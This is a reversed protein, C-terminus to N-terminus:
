KNLINKIKIAVELCLRDEAHELNLKSIERIRKLRYNLTNRHLFLHGATSQINCNHCFYQELSSVLETGNQQDYNILPQLYDELFKQLDDTCQHTILLRYIGLENFHYVKGKGWVARGIKLAQRAEQYSKNLEVIQGYPRGIGISVSLDDFCSKIEQGIREGIERTYQNLTRRDDKNKVDLLVVFSDSRQAVIPENEYQGVIKKVLSLIKEKLKQIMDEWQTEPRNSYQEFDDLDVNLVSFRKKLNWGLYQARKLILKEDEFSGLLLDDIFERQLRIETELIAKQKMMELAVVTATHEIATTQFKELYNDFSFITVAGYRKNGVLVPAVIQKIKEKEDSLVLHSSSQFDASSLKCRSERFASLRSLQEDEASYALLNGKEDEIIVPNKIIQALTDAISKLGGGRLITQTLQQHLEEGWKILASQQDLIIGLVANIVEIYPTELPLEIIPFNLEDGIELVKKPITAIFRGPKILLAAAGLNALVRVLDEQKKPDNKIAFATTMIMINPRLWGSIDPVEMVDVYLVERELGGSGAVLRANKFASLQLADRVTIGM